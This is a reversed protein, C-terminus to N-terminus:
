KAGRMGWEKRQWETWIPRDDGDDEGVVRPPPNPDPAARRELPRQREEATLRKM